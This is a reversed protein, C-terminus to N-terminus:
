VINTELDDLLELEQQSKDLEDFVADRAIQDLRREVSVTADEKAVPAEEDQQDDHEIAISEGSFAAAVLSANWAQVAEASYSGATFAAVLDSTDFESDCNWDGSSWTSNGAIGDEYEGATFIAVLDESNFIGDLNSDGLDTGLINRVLFLSDENDIQGDGNLDFAADGGHNQCLLTIDNADVVGNQDFDGPIEGDGATGPNPAAAIWSTANDGYATNSTRQLSSGAGDASVPWPADDDYRVRDVLVWAGEEGALPMELEIREGGNDLNGSFPGLLSVNEGIGYNSRFAAVATADDLSFPVVVIASSAPVVTNAPFVFDVARDLRWGSIDMPAGQGNALEIFELANSLEANDAAPNYNVESVAVAPIVPGSNTSGFSTQTMPFLGGEGNPWRGLSVGANTASFSVNDVFYSPKGNEDSQTLWVDDSDQGKLGFGLETESLTLYAGAGISTGDAFSFKALNGNADSLNWGSVDVATDGANFLEVQDVAPADSNSLVENIVVTQPEVQDITGPTGGIVRSSRWSRGDSPDSSDGIWELTSGSGDARGPWNGQDNYAFQQITEGAADVLTLTEGGDSLRGGTWQGNPGVVGDNGLALPVSDGYRGALAEVDRAVVVREGPALIQDAFVFAIGEANGDIAATQFEVDRLNIDNAGFNELEIFEFQSDGINPEGFEPIANHPHYNIESIRLNSADAGQGTAFTADTLASWEGDNLIRMRVRGTPSLQIQNSYISATPSVDGGELRPDTGDTTFYIIGANQDNPNEVTIVAGAALQGGHQRSGDVLFEPAATAPYFGSRIFNSLANETRVPFYDELLRQQEPLWNDNKTLVTNQRSDGWRASEAIIPLDLENASEMWRAATKEPTLAGDNFLLRHVEDGFRVVYEPVDELDQTLRLLDSVPRVTRERPNELVREADWIFFQWPMEATGGGGSRWNGDAKLDQNGGFQQVINFLIHNEIDLVKQIEDWDKVDAKVVDQMHRYFDLNGDVALNANTADYDIAQGGYYAALHSADQREHMEYIGWYLGNLYMHVYRGHGAAAQGAALMTDRMWMERQMMGRNRQEPNWHIWSNNYRARFHISDFQTVASDEFLPYDLESFGYDERFRLSMSHKLHEPNRSAGGQMRAGADIQFGVTGDPFIMEASATEEDESQPNAYLGDGFLDNANLSVSPLALLAERMDDAYAPDTTVEPDMEYDSRQNRWRDPFEVPSTSPGTTPTASQQIVQDIFIYTQTDVDTSVYGDRFATARLTTTGDVLIPGSYVNGNELTPRSGDLTYRIEAESMATTIEVSFPEEYFGRDVSFRTDSVIGLFADSNDAGPTATSLYGANGDSAWGYAVDPFQEPYGDAFADLVAGESDNIALYEGELSLAFNTHYTGTEDLNVDRIDRQTAYVLLYGSAPVITNEPVQWKTPAFRDDTLHFGGIDFDSTTLNQIEIWDPNITERRPFNDAPDERVNTVPGTVNAAVIESIRVPSQGVFVTVGVPESTLSGDSVRYTFEDTGEFGANPTYALSGNANLTLQGNTPGTELTASLDTSDIDFDNNLVGRSEDLEIVGDVVGFLVDSNGVPVDNVAVVDLTVIAENSDDVGDTLVYSFVDTGFYDPNPTYEISGDENVVVTGNTTPSVIRATLENGDADSDNALPGEEKTLILPVDENLSIQDNVAVPPTNVILTVTQPNTNQTQDFVRYSFTETGSFGQPDYTFSGDANLNLQGNTVDSELIVQREVQDHNTDNALVGNDASVSLVEAPIAKYTEPSTIVPDYKQEVTITVTATNSPRFDQAAYTFSDVGFFNAESDYIFGGDPQLIVTGHSPEDVLVATLPDGDVDTDNQLVGDTGRIILGILEDELTTYADDVAVPASNSYFDTISSRITAYESADLQGNYFRVEAIDGSFGGGPSLLGGIAIEIANDRSSTGADNRTVVPADDVYLSLEGGSRTFAVVHTQGDNLGGTSSVTHTPQLFGSSIGAMVQGDNNIALGWDAAFGLRNGDVIGANRFWDAGGSEFNTASTAFVVVLSFDDAGAMPSNAAAVQLLDKGDSADFRIAARAGVSTHQLVPEGEDLTAEVQGIKDTWSSVIAGEEVTDILDQALWHAVLDGALLVRPELVESGSFSVSQRYKKTARVFM